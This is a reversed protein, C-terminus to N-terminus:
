EKPEVLHRNQLFVNDQLTQLHRLYALSNFEETPQEHTPTAHRSLADQEQQIEEPDQEIRRM